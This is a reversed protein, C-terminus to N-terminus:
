QIIIKQISSKGGQIHLIYIGNPLTNTYYITNSIASRVIQGATNYLTLHVNETSKVEIGDAHQIITYENEIPDITGTQNLLGLLYLIANDILTLGDATINATSYESMGIMLCTQTLKTGNMNAGIPMEAICTGNNSKNRALEIVGTCNNWASIATVGNTNVQSLVNISSTSLDTFLPHNTKTIIMEDDNSNIATGWDWCNTGNKFIFPKLVLMPKNLGKLNNYESTNKTSPVPGLVVVDYINYDNSKSADLISTEYKNSANLRSLITADREDDPLTIYAISYVNTSSDKINFTLIISKAMGEGVTTVTISHSGLTSPKGSFTITSNSKSATIGDLLTSYTVDTASGGWTLTVPTIAEGLKINQNLAGATCTLTAPLIINGEEAGYEYCGLDPAKGVYQLGVDVGADILKSGEKLHMLAITPLSGDANRPTIAETMDTGLFDSTSCSIGNWTNHDATTKPKFVDKSGSSLSVCNHLTLTGNSNNFGFNSGKNKYGTCNYFYMIGINNNQDFGKVSNGVALCHVVKVNHKTEQGGVKFGNGNGWNKFNSLTITAKNGEDDTVSKGSKFQEFFSKDTEYRGHNTMDYSTPGNNYCICNEMLTEGSTTVRQFFDWGDDSNNWARCGVYRNPAGSYQKDAFGDANGGYDVDTTSLDNGATNGYDFNDYSDVNLILNNGGEGKMQVGSDANGYVQLNEFTNNSGSCYLANKGSYRLTIGKLHLYKSSVELGRKGYATKRFDFIVETADYNCITVPKSSLGSISMKTTGLNYQGGLLYLTDGAKLKSLAKNFTTPNTEASGDGNGNPSAYYNTASLILSYATILLSIFLKRM